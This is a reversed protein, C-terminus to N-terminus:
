LRQTRGRVLLFYLIAGLCPLAAVVAFWIVKYKTSSFRRKPVDLIAWFTPVIPVIVIVAVILLNLTSFTM